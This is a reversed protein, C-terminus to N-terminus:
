KIEEFEETYMKINRLEELLINLDKEQIDFKKMESNGIVIKNNIMSAYAKKNQGKHYSEKIHVAKDIEGKIITEIDSFTKPTKEKKIMKFLFGYEPYDYDVKIEKSPFKIHLIFEIEERIINKTNNKNSKYIDIFKKMDSYHNIIGSSSDKCAAITSKLELFVIKYKEGTNRLMIFDYRGRIGSNDKETQSDFCQNYEQDVCVWKDSYDQYKYAIDNQIIKEEEKHKYYQDLYECTVDIIYQYDLQPTVPIRYIKGDKLMGKRELKQKYSLTIGKIYEKKSTSFNRPKIYLNKTTLFLAVAVRGKYYFTIREPEIRFAVFCKKKKAYDIIQDIIKKYKRLIDINLCRSNNKM